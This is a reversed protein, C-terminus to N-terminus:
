RQCNKGNDLIQARVRARSRRLRGTACPPATYAICVFPEEQM